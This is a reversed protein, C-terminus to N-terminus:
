LFLKPLFFSDRRRGDFKILFINGFDYILQIFPKETLVIALCKM